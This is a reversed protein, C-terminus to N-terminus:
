SALSSRETPAAPEAECAPSCTAPDPRRMAWLSALFGEFATSVSPECAGCVSLESTEEVTCERELAEGVRSPSEDMGLSVRYFVDGPALPRRCIDCDSAIATTLAGVGEPTVIFDTPEDLESPPSPPRLPPSPPSSEPSPSANM